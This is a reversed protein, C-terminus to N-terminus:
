NGLCSGLIHFAAGRRLRSTTIPLVNPLFRPGQSTESQELPRNDQNSALDENSFPFIALYYLASTILILIKNFFPFIWKSPTQTGLDAVIFSCVHYRPNPAEPCTSTKTVPWFVLRPAPLRECLNILLSILSPRLNLREFSPDIGWVSPGWPLPTCCM